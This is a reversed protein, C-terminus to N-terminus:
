FNMSVGFNIVRSIPYVNGNGTNLEPDWMDFGSFTLLNMGSMFFRIDNARITQSVGIPLSYGVEVNRLRLYSM